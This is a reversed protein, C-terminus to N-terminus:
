IHKWTQRNKIRSIAMEGIKYELALLSGPEGLNLRARINLVDQETLKASKHQSGKLPGNAQPKDIKTIHSWSSGNKIKWITGNSVNFKKSLLECTYGLKLLKNIVLVDDKTLITSKRNEITIIKDKLIKLNCNLQTCINITLHNWSSGNLIRHLQVLSINFKELIESTNKFTNNHIGTLIIFIDKETLKSTAITSGKANRNKIDRDLNNQNITGEWLHNPNVCRPNDCSHCIVMDKKIPGNYCEYVFRSGVHNRGNYWFTPYGKVMGTNLIWCADLNVTNDENYIVIIKDWLREIVSIDYNMQNWNASIQKM